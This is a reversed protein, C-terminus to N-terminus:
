VKGGEGLAEGEYVGGYGFEVGPEGGRTGAKCAGDAGYDIFYEGEWGLVDCGGLSGQLDEFRQRIHSRSMFLLSYTIPRLFRDLRHPFATRNSHRHRQLLHPKTRTPTNPLCELRFEIDCSRKHPM